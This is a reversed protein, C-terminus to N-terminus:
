RRDLRGAGMRSTSDLHEKSPDAAHQWMNVNPGPAAMPKLVAMFGSEYRERSNRERGIRARPSSDRRARGGSRGRGRRCGSSEASRVCPLRLAGPPRAGEPPRLDAGIRPLRQHANVEISHALRGAASEVAGGCRTHGEGETEAVGSLAEVPPGGPRRRHPSGGCAGKCRAPARPRSDALAPATSAFGGPRAM